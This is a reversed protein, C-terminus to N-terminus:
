HPHHLSATTEKPEEIKRVTTEKPEEIKRVAIKCMCGGKGHEPLQFRKNQIQRAM